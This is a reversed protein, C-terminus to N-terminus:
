SRWITRSSSRSVRCVAKELSTIKSFIEDISKCAPLARIKETIVTYGILSRKNWRNHLGVWGKLGDLPKSLIIQHADGDTLLLLMSYIQRSLDKNDESINDVAAETKGPKTVEHMIDYASPSIM